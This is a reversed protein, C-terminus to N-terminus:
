PAGAKNKRPASARAAHSRAVLASGVAGIFPLLYLAQMSMWEPHPIAALNVKIRALSGFAILIGFFLQASTAVRGAIYGGVVAGLTWGAFLADYAGPPMTPIALRIAEIAEASQPNKVFAEVAAKMESSTPFIAHSAAKIASVSIGM